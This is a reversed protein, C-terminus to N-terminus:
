AGHATLWAGRLGFGNGKGQARLGKVSGLQENSIALQEWKCNKGYGM